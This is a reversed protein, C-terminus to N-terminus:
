VSFQMYSLNSVRKLINKSKRESKYARCKLTILHARYFNFSGLPSIDHRSYPEFLVSFLQDLLIINNM